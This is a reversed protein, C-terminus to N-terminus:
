DGGTGRTTFVREEERTTTDPIVVVGSRTNGCRMTTEIITGDEAAAVSIETVSVFTGKNIRCSHDTVDRKKTNPGVAIPMKGAPTQTTIGLDTGADRTRNSLADMELRRSVAEAVDVEEKLRVGNSSKGKEVQETTTSPLDNITQFRTVIASTRQRM